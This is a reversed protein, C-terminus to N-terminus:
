NTNHITRPYQFKSQNQFM